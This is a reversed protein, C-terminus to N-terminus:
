VSILKSIILTFTHKGNMWIPFVTGCSYIDPAYTPMKNGNPGTFKYWGADLVQDSRYPDDPEGSAVYRM